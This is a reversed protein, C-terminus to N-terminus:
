YGVGSEGEIFVGERKPKFPSFDPLSLFLLRTLKFLNHTVSPKKKSFVSSLRRDITRSNYCLENMAYREGGTRAKPNQDWLQEHNSRIVTSSSM